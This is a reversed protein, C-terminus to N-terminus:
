TAVRKASEKAHAKLTVGFVREFLEEYTEPKGERRGVVVPGMRETVLVWALRDRLTAFPGGQYVDVGHQKLRELLWSEATPPALLDAQADKGGSGTQPSM